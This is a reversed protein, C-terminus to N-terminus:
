RQDGIKLSVRGAIYQGNTWIAVVAAVFKVFAETVPPADTPSIAGFLAGVAILNTIITVWFETTKYGAKYPVATKPKEEM